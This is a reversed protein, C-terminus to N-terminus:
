KPMYWATNIALLALWPAVYKHTLKCVTCKLAFVALICPRYLPLDLFEPLPPTVSYSFQM